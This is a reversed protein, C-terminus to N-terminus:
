FRVSVARKKRKKLLKANKEVQREIYIDRLVRVHRAAPDMFSIAADPLRATQYDALLPQVFEYKPAADPNPQRVIPVGWKPTSYILPFPPDDTKESRCLNLSSPGTTYEFLPLPPAPEM